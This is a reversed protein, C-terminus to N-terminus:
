AEAGTEKSAPLRAYLFLGGLLLLLSAGTVLFGKRLWPSSYHYEVVHKGPEVKMGRFAFDVRLAEAPKGDVVAHWNPFFLESFVVIGATPADVEFVHHNNSRRIEKFTATPAAPAAPSAPAAQASDAARTTDAPVVATAQPAAAQHSAPEVPTTRSIFATRTPDFSPDKMRELISTDGDTEWSGVFRVRPLASKNPALKLGPDDPMRYALYKVNLMDLFKSGEVSGDPNQKLGAM